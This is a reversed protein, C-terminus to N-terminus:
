TNVRRMSRQGLYPYHQDLTIARISVSEPSLEPRVPNNSDGWGQHLRFAYETFLFPAKTPLRVWVRDNIFGEDQGGTYILEKPLFPMRKGVARHVREIEDWSHDTRLPIDGQIALFLEMAARGFAERDLYHFDPAAPRFGRFSTDYLMLHYSGFTPNTEAKAVVADLRSGLESLIRATEVAQGPTTPSTAGKLTPEEFGLWSVKAAIAPIIQSDIVSRRLLSLQVLEASTLKPPAEAAMISHKYRKVCEIDLVM